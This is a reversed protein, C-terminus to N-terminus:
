KNFYNLSAVGTSIDLGNVGLRFLEFVTLLAVIFIGIALIREGSSFIKDAHNDRQLMYYVPIGVAFLLSM